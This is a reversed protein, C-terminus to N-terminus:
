RPDSTTKKLEGAIIDLVKFLNMPEDPLVNKEDGDHRHHPFNSLTPYHEANDWRIIINNNANMWHFSYRYLEIGGRPTTRAYEM